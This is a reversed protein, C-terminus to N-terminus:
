KSLELSALMLEGAYQVSLKECSLDPYLQKGEEDQLIDGLFDAITQEKVEERAERYVAQQINGDMDVWADEHALAKELNRKERNAERKFQAEPIGLLEALTADRLDIRVTAETARLEEKAELLEEHSGINLRMAEDVQQRTSASPYARYDAQAEEILLKKRAKLDEFVATVAARMQFTQLSILHSKIIGKVQPVYAAPKDAEIYLEEAAFKTASDLFGTDEVMGLMADILSCVQCDDAQHNYKRPDFQTKNNPM